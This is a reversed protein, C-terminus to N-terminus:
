APEKVRKQSAATEAMLTDTDIGAQALVFCCRDVFRRFAHEEMSAFNISKPAMVAAGTLANRRLECHGTALKLDDLLVDESAWQDSNEVVKRLMSFFFRHHQPSRPKRITIMIERGDAIERLMEDAAVDSPILAGGRRFFCRGSIDTM